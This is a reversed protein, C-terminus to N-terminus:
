RMKNKKPDVKNESLAQQILSMKQLLILTMYADNGANHLNKYPIKCMNLLGELTEGNPLSGKKRFYRKYSLQTDIVQIEKPISIGMQTMLEYDERQEHFLVYKANKIAMEILKPIQKEKILETKGFDFRQQLAKNKKKTYHEEVLFHFGKIESGENFAIGVETVDYTNDKKIFFEFDISVVKDNIFDRVLNSALDFEEKEKDKRADIEAQLILMRKDKQEQRAIEKLQEKKGYTSELSHKEEIFEVDKVSKVPYSQIENTNKDLKTLAMKGEYFMDFSFHIGFKQEAINYIKKLLDEDLLFLPHNDSVYVKNLGINEILNTINFFQIIEVKKDKFEKINAIKPQIQHISYYM